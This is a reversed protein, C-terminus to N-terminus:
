PSPYIKDAAFRAAGRITKDAMGTVGGFVTRGAGLLKAGTRGPLLAAISEVLDSATGLLFDAGERLVTSLLYRDTVALLHEEAARSGLRSWIFACLVRARLYDDSQSELWRCGPFFGGSWLDDKLFRKWSAFQDDTIVGRRRADDMLEIDPDLMPRGSLYQMIGAAILLLQPLEDMSTTRQLKAWRTLLDNIERRSAEEPTDPSMTRFKWVPITEGDRTIKRQTFFVTRWDVKHEHVLRDISTGTVNVLTLTAYLPFRQIFRALELLDKETLEVDRLKEVDENFLAHFWDRRNSVWDAGFQAGERPMPVTRFYRFAEPDIALLEEIAHQVPRWYDPGPFALEAGPEMITRTNTATAEAPRAGTPEGHAESGRAFGGGDIHAQALMEMQRHRPIRKRGPKWPTGFEALPDDPIGLAGPNSHRQPGPRQPDLHDALNAAVRVDLTETLDRYALLVDHPIPQATILGKPPTELLGSVENLIATVVEHPHPDPHTDSRLGHRIYNDVSVSAVVISIHRVEPCQRDITAWVRRAHQPTCVAIISEVDHGHEELLAVSKIANQRTNEALPEEIVHHAGLGTQQAGLRFRAAESMWPRQPNGTEAAEKDYGSFVVPIEDLGHERTLNAVVASSGDDPSGFLIIADHHGDPDFAWKPDHRLFDWVKTLDSMMRETDVGRDSLGQLWATYTRVDTATAARAFGGGDIHAQALMEMQRHRPIRKRGPEWPAGFDALPDDPLGNPGIIPAAPATRHHDIPESVPTVSERRRLGFLRRLQEVRHRSGIIVQRATVAVAAAGILGVSLWGSVDVGHSSLVAGGILGGVAPGTALALDKASTARGHHTSPVVQRLHTGVRVNMGVGIMSVGLAGVAVLIPNTTVSQLAAVGTFSALAAPYLVGVKTKNVLHKPILLAGAVGGIAGAGLVLGAAAGPLAAEDVIVAARLNLIAAAVNTVPTIATYERLFSDHWIQSAGDRIDRLPNTREAAARTPLSGRLKSLTVQNIAYSVGNAVFPLVQNVGLLIPGLVRGGTGAVYREAQTMRTASEFQEPTVLERVTSDLSRAYFRAATAEALTTGALILGIDPAGLAIAAGSGAVSAMGAWQAIRMTKGRNYFDAAYGAPLEFLISPAWLAVTALGAAMPDGTLGMALLPLSSQQISDGLGTVANSIYLQRYPKNTALLERVSVPDSVPAEPETDASSEPAPEAPVAPPEAPEAAPPPEATAPDPQAGKKGRWLKRGFGGGDIHWVEPPEGRRRPNAWPRDPGDFPADPDPVGMYGPLAAPRVPAAEQPGAQERPGADVTGRSSAPDADDLKEDFVPVADAPIGALAHAGYYEMARITTIGYNMLEATRQESSGAVHRLMLCRYLTANDKELADLRNRMEQRGAMALGRGRSGARTDAPLVSWIEQRYRASELHDHAVNGFVTALTRGTDPSTRTIQRGALHFTEETIDRALQQQQAADLELDGRRVRQEVTARARQFVESEFEALLPDPATDPPRATTADPAVLDARTDAGTKYVIHRIHNRITGTASGLAAAIEATTMGETYLRLVETERESLPIAGSRRNRSGPMAGRETTAAASPLEARVAAAPLEPRRARGLKRRINKLHQEVTGPSIRLRTAIEDDACGEAILALVETERRSVTPRTDATGAIGRLLRSAREIATALTTDGDLREIALARMRASRHRLSRPAKDLATFREYLENFSDAAEQVAREEPLRDRVECLVQDIHRLSALGAQPCPTRTLDFTAQDLLNRLYAAAAAAFEPDTATRALEFAAAPDTYDHPVPRPASSNEQALAMEMDVALTEDYTVSTTGDDDLIGLRLAKMFIPISGKAGLEAGIAERRRQVASPSIGSLEGIAQDTMGGAMRGLLERQDETLRVVGIPEPDGSDILGRRKAELVTTIAGATGLKGAARSQFTKVAGPSMGLRDAIEAPVLGRYVLDLVAGEAASLPQPAVTEPRPASTPRRWPTSSNGDDGLQGLVKGKKPPAQSDPDHPFLNTLAGDEDATLFAVFAEDIDPYSQKWEAVTRVRPIREPDGPDVHPDGPETINTDFVVVNGGPKNDTNTITLSHLKTGNGLLLVATDAGDKMNRVDDITRAVPDDAEPDFEIKVLQTSIAEQLHKASKQWKKPRSGSDLGLAWVATATQHICDLLKKAKFLRKYLSWTAVTGFTAAISIGTAESGFLAIAGGAVAPGLAFAGNTTVVTISRVRGRVDSPITKNMYTAVPIGAAGLVAWTSAFGASAVWPDNTAAQIIAPVALGALRATLLTEISPKELWKQPILNGVVGGLPTILLAAGQQWESLGSDTIMATFQIGQLGLYFNTLGLNVNQRRRLPLNQVAHFGETISERMHKWGSASNEPRPATPIDPMRWLTALNVISTAADILPAAWTGAKLTLPGLGSGLVRTANTKLNNFRVLGAQANGAMEVLVKDAASSYIVASGAGVLTTGILIPISYDTGTALAAAATIGSAATLAQSGILLKKSSTHDTLHGAILAGGLHPLWLAWAAAGAVAPGGQQMLYLATVTQMLEYGASNLFEAGLRVGMTRDSRILHVLTDPTPAPTDPSSTPPENVEAPDGTGPSKPQPPEAKPAAPREDPNEPEGGTWEQGNPNHHFALFPDPGEHGLAARRPRYGKPAPRNLTFPNDDPHAPPNTVPAPAPPSLLEGTGDAWSFGSATLWDTLVEHATRFAPHTRGPEPGFDLSSYHATATTSAPSVDITARAPEGLVPQCTVDISLGGGYPTRVSEVEFSFEETGGRLHKRLEATLAQLDVQERPEPVTKAAAADGDNEAPSWWAPGVIDLASRFRITSLDIREGLRHLVQTRAKSSRRSDEYFTGSFLDVFEPNGESLEWRGYGAVISTDDPRTSQRREDEDAHEALYANLLDSHEGESSTILTGSRLLLFPRLGNTSHPNRNKQSYFVGADDQDLVVVDVTRQPQGYRAGPRFPTKAGDYETRSPTAPPGTRRAKRLGADYAGPQAARLRHNIRTQGPALPEAAAPVGPEIGPKLVRAAGDIRHPNRWDTGYQHVEDVHVARNPFHGALALDIQHRLLDFRPDATDPDHHVIWTNIQGSDSVRYRINCAVTLGGVDFTSLWPVDLQNKMELHSPGRAEVAHLVLTKTGDALEVATVLGAVTPNPGGMRAIEDPTDVVIRGAAAGTAQAPVAPQAGPQHPDGGTWEQGNPNHHFALFPDLGDPGPGARRPRFGKPAPRNLAFPDEVPQAPAPAAPAPAAAAQPAAQLGAIAHHATLLQDLVEVLRRLTPDDSVEAAARLETVPDAAQPAPPGPETIGLRNALERDLQAPSVDSRQWPTSGADNERLTALRLGLWDVLVDLEQGAAALGEAGAGRLWQQAIRVAQEVLVPETLEPVVLLLTALDNRATQLRVQLEHVAANPDIGSVPADTGAFIAGSRDLWPGTARAHFVEIAASVRDADRGLTVDTYRATIVDDDRTLVLTVRGAEGGVPNVSFTIRLSNETADTAVVYLWFDETAGLFIDRAGPIAPGNREGRNEILQGVTPAGAPIHTRWLDGLIGDDFTFQVNRKTLEALGYAVFRLDSGHPLLQSGFVIKVDRGGEMSWQGFSFVKPDPDPYTGLLQLHTTPVPATRIRGPTFFFVDGLPGTTYGMDDDHIGGYYTIQVNTYDVRQALEPYHLHAPMRVTDYANTPDAAADPSESTADTSWPTSGVPVPTAGNQPPEATPPATAPVSKLDFDGRRLGQVVAGTRDGVGLKRFMLPLAAKVTETSLGLASAIRSNTMGAAVLPLIQQERPSLPAPQDRLPIEELRLHGHRLAQVVAETRGRAGLARATTEIGRVNEGAAFRALAASEDGSIERVPDSHTAPIESPDLAGVALARVVAETRNQAGFIRILNRVSSAVISTSLETATAIDQNTDHIALLALIQRDRDNLQHALTPDPEPIERLPFLKRRLAQVVAHTRDRADLKELIRSLAGKVFDETEALEQAIEGNTRSAAVLRLIDLETETLPGAKEELPPISQRLVEAALKNVAALQLGSMRRGTRVAIAADNIRRRQVSDLRSTALLFTAKDTSALELTADILEPDEVHEIVEHVLEADTARSLGPVSSSPLARNGALFALTVRRRLDLFATEPANPASNGTAASGGTKSAARDTVVLDRRHSVGLKNRILKVYSKVTEESVFLYTSIEANTKGRAVLRLVTHQRQSLAQDAHQLLATLFVDVNGTLADRDPTGLKDYIRKVYSNVTKGPINLRDAIAANSEGRVIMGLISTETRSLARTGGRQSLAAATARDAGSLEDRSSVGLRDFIRKVQSKVAGESIELSNAIAANPEGQVVMKLIARQRKSLPRTGSDIQEVFTDIDPPEDRAPEEDPQGGRAFGGGTIETQVFQEARRKGRGLNRGHDLPNGRDGFPDSPDPVGMPGRLAPAPNRRPAADAKWPVGAGAVPKHGTVPQAGPPEPPTVDVDSWPTTTNPAPTAGAPATAPRGAWPNSAGGADPASAGAGTAKELGGPATGTMLAAAVTIDDRGGADIAARVYARPVTSLDGGSRTLAERLIAAIPEPDDPSLPEWMGDSTVVVVGKGRVQEFTTAHSDLGDLPRGLSYTLGQGIASHEAEERPTGFADMVKQVNSDDTTLQIAPGDDLPVWYARSDGVWDVTLRGSELLAVVITAAPPETGSDATTGLIATQASAVVDRVVAVPDLEGERDARELAAVMSDRGAEKGAASARHGGKPRSTGDLLVVGVVERGGVTMQVLAFADENIPHDPSRDSAAAVSGLNEQTLNEEAYARPPLEEGQAPPDGPQGPEPLVPTAAQGTLGADVPAPPAVTPEVPSEPPEAPVLTRETHPAKGAFNETLAISRGPFRGLLAADIMACVAPFHPNGVDPDQHAIWAEVRGDDHHRYTIHAEVAVGDSEVRVTFPSRTVSRLVLHSPGRAEVAQLVLHNSHSEPDVGTILGTISDEHPGSIGEVWRPIVTGSAAAPSAPREGALLNADLAVLREEAARLRDVAVVAQRDQEHISQPRQGDPQTANDATTLAALWEAAAHFHHVLLRLRGPPAPTANTDLAAILEDLRALMDHLRQYRSLDTHPAANRPDIVAAEHEAAIGERVLRLLNPDVAASLGPDDPEAVNQPRQEALQAALQNVRDDAARYRAVAEEAFRSQQDISHPVQRDPRTASDADLVAALWEAAAHFHQVLLQLRDATVTDTQGMAAGLEDLRGHMTDLRRLREVEAHTVPEASDFQAAEHEAAIGERVLSLLGPDVAAMLDATPPVASAADDPPAAPSHQEAGAGWPLGTRPDVNFALVEFPADRPVHTAPGRRRPRGADLVEAPDIEPVFRTTPGPPPTSPSRGGRESTSGSRNPSETRPSAAPPAETTTGADRVFALGTLAEPDDPVSESTYRLRRFGSNAVADFVRRAVDPDVTQKGRLVRQAAARSTGAAQAVDETRVRRLTASRDVPLVDPLHHAMQRLVAQGIRQSAAAPLGLAATAEAPTYGNLYRLTAFTALREPLKSIGYEFAARPVAVVEAHEATDPEHQPLMARIAAWVRHSIDPSIVAGGLVKRAQSDSIGARHALDTLTVPQDHATDTQEGTTDIRHPYELNEASDLVRRVTDIDHGGGGLLVWHATAVDVEAMRAVDAVTARDPESAPLRPRAASNQMVDAGPLGIGPETEQEFILGSPGDPRTPASSDAFPLGIRTAAEHVRVSIEEAVEAGALSSTADNVTTGALWAVDAVTAPRVTGYVVTDGGLEAAFFASLYSLAASHLEEYDADAGLAARIEVSSRGQLYRLDIYDTLDDSLTEMAQTLASRSVPRLDPAGASRVRFGIRDAAELVSAATEPDRKGEGRLVRYVHQESVGTQEAVRAASADAAIPAARPLGESRPGLLGHERASERVATATESTLVPGDRLVKDVTAVGVGAERAVAARTIRGTYGIEAAVTLVRQRTHEDLRGGRSGLVKDVTELSLGAARAVDPKTVQEWYGLQDAATRVRAVAEESVASRGQLVLHVIEVDVGVEAAVEAIAAARRETEAQTAEATSKSETPAPTPEAHPGETTDATEEAPAQVALKALAARQVLSIDAGRQMASLAQAIHNRQTPNLQRWEAVVDGAIDQVWEGADAGEPVPWPQTPTEVFRFALRTIEQALLVYPQAEAGHSRSIGLLSLVARVTDAGHQDRLEQLAAPEGRQARALTSDAASGSDADTARASGDPGSIRDTVEVVPIAETPVPPPTASDSGPHDDDPTATPAGDSADGFPQHLEFWTAKGNPLPDTGNDDALLDVFAGGRGREADWDPMGTHDPVFESEDTVAFRTKRTGESDTTTTIIEIRGATHRLSNAVLESVLLETTDIQDQTLWPLKEPLSRVWERARGTPQVRHGEEGVTGTNEDAGRVEFTDRLRPASSQQAPQSSEANEPPTIPREPPQPPAPDPQNKRRRKPDGGGTPAQM